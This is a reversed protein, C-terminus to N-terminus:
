ISTGNIEEVKRFENRIHWARVLLVFRDKDRPDNHEVLKFKGDGPLSIVLRRRRRGMCYAATQLRSWEPYGGTKLELLTSDDEQDPHGVYKEAENVIEHECRLARFGNLPGNIAALFGDVYPMIDRHRSVWDGAIENGQAIIACAAHVLKGRRAGQADFWRDDFIGMEKIVQTVSPWNNM